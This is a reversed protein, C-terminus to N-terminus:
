LTIKFNAWVEDAFQFQVADGSAVPGVGAPTGTFIIDGAKLGFHIGIYDILDAFSFMMDRAFGVQRVEGNIALSFQTDLISLWDHSSYFDSIVASNRFGKAFEWPHGKKKLENQADRDTLDLGLAVGGVLEQLQAGPQYDDKLWLVIELEHHINTREHPLKVEGNAAVVAHTPKAFIMPREPVENGLEIAHDRYNRGVCFVNRVEAVAEEASKYLTPKLVHLSM